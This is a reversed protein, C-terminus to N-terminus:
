PMCIATYSVIITDGKDPVVSDGFFVSNTDGYYTWGDAGGQSGARPVVVGNVKVTITNPDAPRSLPFERIAAFADMGLANLAVAWNGCISEFIGNTRTAVDISRTGGGDQPGCTTDNPPAVIASVKMMDTNRPGKINQFFDVYFDTEGKSQDQEDSVAIIYLKADERLFGGNKTPDDVLPPSLAMWAAQLGAEQEDSCCDGINVNAAFASNINPTSNTIIKPTQNPVYVLVGPEIDRRPNGVNSDGSNVETAVVGIHFDVQLTTAWDIFETFNNALAQQDDSMSGSNDIAFLVDSKVQSPQHFVDEVTSIFTGRGFLPVALTEVNSADSIIYLTSRHVNDDQPHYRLKIQFSSGGNLSYPVPPASTIEFNPDAPDELAISTINLRETGLNYVTVHLEPSRCGVTVVGFDLEAPVVEISSEASFGTLPICADGLNVPPVLCSMSTLGLQLV